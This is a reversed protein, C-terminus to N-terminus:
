KKAAYDKTGLLHLSTYKENGVVWSDHGPPVYFIDGPRLIVQKGDRMLVAAQGSLVIGVHETECLETGSIKGVHEKWVWGPEYTARGLQMGGTNVLEFKGKTFNRVEDPKDFRKIIINKM